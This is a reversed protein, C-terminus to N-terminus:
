LVWIASELQIRRSMKSAGRNRETFTIAQERLIFGYHWAYFHLEILFGYGEARFMSWDLAQLLNRRLANFGSTPDSVPLRTLFRTYAGAFLSLFLRGPPWNLVRIGDLYRSGIVLDAGQEITALLRPIDQPDHSLDADMEVCVDFGERLAWQFGAKVAGAFGLRDGRQLLFVRGNFQPHQEVLRASGDPSLDDVILVHIREPLCLLREFLTALNAAENYVPVIVLCQGTAPNPALLGSNM